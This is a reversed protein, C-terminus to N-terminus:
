MNNIPRWYLDDKGFDRHLEAILQCKQTTESTKEPAYLYFSPHEDSSENIKVAEELASNVDTLLFLEETLRNRILCYGVCEIKSENKM